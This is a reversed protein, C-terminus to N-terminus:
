FANVLQLRNSVKDYFCLMIGGGTTNIDSIKAQTGDYLYLPINSNPVDLTAFEVLNDQTENNLNQPVKVFFGGFFSINRQPHNNFNFLSTNAPLTADTVSQVELMGFGLRNSVRLPVTAM